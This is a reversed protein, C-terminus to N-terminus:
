QINSQYYDSCWISSHNYVHNYRIILRTDFYLLGGENTIQIVGATFDSSGIGNIASIRITYNNYEQLGILDISEQAIAPYTRGAINITEFQTTTDFEVGTYSIRYSTIPGNQDIELPPNFTVRISTPGLAETAVNQPTDNPALYVM